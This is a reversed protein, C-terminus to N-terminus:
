GGPHSITLLQDAEVDHLVTRNGDPWVVIVTVSEARGLGFHAESPSQSVYSGGARIERTQTEGDAPQVTIRAGIGQTNPRVGRLVIGLYRHVPTGENRYFRPAEGNNSVFIDIDGDRDADFCAVGRGQGTDTLGVELSRESFTGDGNSMFLRSPDSWFERFEPRDGVYMGNVHFLDLHGDNDFDAFCSAWGWYGERVRASQSVDTFRGRGDNQYLRNGTVDWTGEPTGDPDWISTVFWDLDGDNDYDGVSAGMGNGDTLLSTQEEVFRAGENLMVTSNGFDSAVLLDLDGDLDTDVFNATFTFELSTLGYEGTVDHFVGAGDNEWLYHGGTANYWHTTFMDLDGDRDVDGFTTSYTDLQTLDGLGAADTVNVFGSGTNGFLLVSPHPAPATEEGVGGVVLDLRGDGDFDVFTAGAEVIGTEGVGYRSAVDSFTGDGSNLYLRNGLGVGSVVFLDIDGDGDIDGSAVGGRMASAGSNARGFGGVPWSFGADSTRDVFAVPTGNSPPSDTAEATPEFPEETCGLVACGLCSLRLSRSRWVMPLSPPRHHRESNM